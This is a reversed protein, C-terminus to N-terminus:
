ELSPIQRRLFEAVVPIRSGRLVAESLLGNGTGNGLDELIVQFLARVVQADFQRHAFRRIEALAEFLGLANRYPRDSVMADFADAVSIIRAGLPIEHHKRRDPYGEGNMWEHHHRALRAVDPYPFRIESLIDFSTRPHRQLERQESRSLESPKKLIVRDTAIKGVDHLIAAVRLAQLEGERLRLAKGISTSLSAVRESHGRMYPDKADIAAAFARITDLYIEKMERLLRSNERVQLRLVDNLSSTKLVERRRAIAASLFSVMVGLTERQMPRLPKGGLTRGLLLFGAAEGSGGLPCFVQPFFGPVAQRLGDAAQRIAPPVGNTCSQVPKRMRRIRALLPGPPDIDPVAPPLGRWVAPRLRGNEELYLVGKGISFTGLVAMLAARLSDEFDGPGSLARSLDRLAQLKYRAPDPGTRGGRTAGRAAGRGRTASSPM